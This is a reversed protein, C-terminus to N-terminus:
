KQNGKRWKGESYIMFLERCSSRPLQARIAAVTEWASTMLVNLCWSFHNSNPRHIKMECANRLLELALYSRCWKENKNNRFARKWSLLSLDSRPGMCESCDGVWYIMGVGFMWRRRMRPVQASKIRGARNSTLCHVCGGPIMLWSLFHQCIASCRDQLLFYRATQGHKWHKWRQEIWTVVYWYRIQVNM